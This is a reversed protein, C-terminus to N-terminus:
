GRAETRPTKMTSRIARRLAQETDFVGDEADADSRISASFGTCVGHNWECWLSYPGEFGLHESVRFGNGGDRRKSM